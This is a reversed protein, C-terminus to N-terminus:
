VLSVFLVFTRIPSIGGSQPEFHKLPALIKGHVTLEMPWLASEFLRSLHRRRKPNAAQAPAHRVPTGSPSPDDLSFTM